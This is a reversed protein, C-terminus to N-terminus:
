IQSKRVAKDTPHEQGSTHSAGSGTAAAAHLVYLADASVWENLHRSSVGGWSVPSSNSGQSNTRYYAREAPFGGDALRKSELLALAPQCREDGIFGAEAMVKLAFLIDYHWYCPYHLLLFNPDIVAGDQVRRYLQRKLFIEAAGTAARASGPNGTCRAHLALARLPILSEMFSSHCAEPNKDCNWGGDEWQWARLRAALEETREDALGLTLLAYM